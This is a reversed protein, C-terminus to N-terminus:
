FALQLRANVGHETGHRDLRADYGINLSLGEDLSVDIGAELALGDPATPVGEVTFGEGALSMRMQPDLDGFGHQWGISTYATVPLDYRALDISTRLGLTTYSTATTEREGTLAAAGGIETFRESTTAVHTLGAFPELGFAGIEFRTSIEGFAQLTHANYSASLSDSFGNFAVSRRTSVDHYTYTAGFQLSVPDLAATLYAGTTWDQSEGSSSRAGASFTSRAYGGLLGVSVTDSVPMDFGFLMGATDQRGSATNATAENKRWAGYARGWIRWPEGISAVTNLSAYAAFPQDSATQTATRMGGLAIQRVQFAGFRANGQLSSHVEGSLQDFASAIENASLLYLSIFPGAKSGLRDVAGSVSRQNPTVGTAISSKILSIEAIQM